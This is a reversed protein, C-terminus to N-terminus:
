QSWNTVRHVCIKLFLFLNTVELPFLDFAIKEINEKGRWDTCDFALLYLTPNWGLSITSSINCSRGLIHGVCCRCFGGFYRALDNKRFKILFGSYDFSPYYLCHHVLCLWYESSCYSTQSHGPRKWIWAGLFLPFQDWLLYQNYDLVIGAILFSLAGYSCPNLCFCSVGVHTGVDLSVWAMTPGFLLLLWKQWDLFYHLCILLGSLKRLAAPDLGLGARLLIITLAVSMLASAWSDDLYRAIYPVNKM